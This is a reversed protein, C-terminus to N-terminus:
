KHIAVVQKRLHHLSPCVVVSVFFMSAFGRKKNKRSRECVSM